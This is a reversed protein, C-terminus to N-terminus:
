VAHHHTKRFVFNQWQLGRATEENEGRYLLVAGSDAFTSIIEVPEIPSYLKGNERWDPSRSGRFSIVIVGGPITIRLLNTVALPIQDIHLHMMVASCLVNGFATSPVAMLLPLSDNFRSAPYHVRAEELMSNAADIGTVVYGQQSLWDADRGIGCGVDACSTGKIFFRDILKYLYEPRLMSHLAAIQASSENYASITQHDM